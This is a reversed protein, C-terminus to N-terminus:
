VVEELVELEPWRRTVRKAVRLPVFAAWGVFTIDRGEDWVTWLVAGDRSARRDMGTEFMFQRVKKATLERGVFRRAERDSTLNLLVLGEKGGTV